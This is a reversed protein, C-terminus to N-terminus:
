AELPDIRPLGLKARDANFREAEAPWHRHLLFFSFLAASATREPETLAGDIFRCSEPTDGVRLRRLIPAPLRLIEERVLFIVTDGIRRAHDRASEGSMAAVPGPSIWATDPNWGLVFCGDNTEIVVLNYENLFPSSLRKM